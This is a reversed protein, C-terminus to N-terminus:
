LGSPATSARAFSPRFFLAPTLLYKAVWGSVGSRISRTAARAPMDLARSAASTADTWQASVVRDEEVSRRRGRGERGHRMCECGGGAQPRHQYIVRVEPESFDYKVGGGAGPVYAEFEISKPSVKLALFEGSVELVFHDDIWDTFSFEPSKFDQKFVETKAKAEDRAVALDHELAQEEEETEPYYNFGGGGIGEIAQPAYMMYTISVKGYEQEMIKPDNMNRIHLMCVNFFADLNPKM